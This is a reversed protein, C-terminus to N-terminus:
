NIYSIPIILYLYSRPAMHCLMNSVVGYIVENLLNQQVIIRGNVSKALVNSKQLIIKKREQLDHYVTLNTCLDM